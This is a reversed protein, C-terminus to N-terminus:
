VYKSIITDLNNIPVQSEIGNELNRLTVKKEAYDRPGVIVLIKANKSAYEIQKKLSRGSVELSTKIGKKRFKSAIETAVDALEEGVYGVFVRDLMNINKKGTRIALIAREVGGAVGIAGMNKRGFLEPLIDYRGGGALAGFQRNKKEFMEFVIGNYYDLGRVIGMNLIVNPVDRVKLVDMLHIMDDVMELKEKGLYDLVRESSGKIAGFDLLKRKVEIGIDQSDVENLIEDITKKELKDVARLLSQIKSKETIGLKKSIFEEIVRRDSIEISINNLGLKKFLTSSLDIIEAEASVGKVGFIEADWQYFWRYRGYQPEDYRWMSSFAGIKVPLSIGRRSVVHRTLGVTLDFRLGVHRDGKDKFHYVEERIDFGSKAELTHLLEIPSPEMLRFGFLGAVEVFTQRVRELIEYDEPELDRMGRPLSLDM